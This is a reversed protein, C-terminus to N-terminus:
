VETEFRPHCDAKSHCEAVSMQPGAQSAKTGMTGFRQSASQRALAYEDETMEAPVHHLFRGFREYCYSAYSLTDLIFAHWASDIEKPPSPSQNSTNCLDLYDLMQRFLESADEFSVQNEESIARIVSPNSYTASM